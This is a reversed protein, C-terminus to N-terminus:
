SGVEVPDYGMVEPEGTGKHFYVNVNLPGEHKYDRV